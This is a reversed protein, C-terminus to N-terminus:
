ADEPDDSSIIEEYQHLQNLIAGFVECHACDAVEKNGNHIPCKETGYFACAVCERGDVETIKTLKLM